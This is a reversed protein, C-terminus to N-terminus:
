APKKRSDLLTHLLTSLVILDQMMFMMRFLMDTMQIYDIFGDVTFSERFNYGHDTNEFVIQKQGEKEQIRFKKHAIADRTARGRTKFGTDSKTNSIKEGASFIEELDFQHESGLHKSLDLRMPYEIKETKLIHVFLLAYLSVVDTQPNQNLIEKYMSDVEDMHEMYEATKERINIPEPRHDTFIKAWANWYARLQKELEPYANAMSSSVDKSLEHILDHTLQSRAQFEKMEEIKTLYDSNGIGHGQLREGFQIIKSFLADIIETIQEDSLSSAFVTL